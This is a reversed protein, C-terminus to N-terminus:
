VKEWEEEEEEAAEAPIFDITRSLTDVSYVRIRMSDGIRYCKGSREGRTLMEKESFVFYDGNMMRLPIMGEIGNELALYIGYETLGSIKGSFCEGIFDKM